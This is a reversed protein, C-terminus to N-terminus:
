GRPKWKLVSSFLEQRSATATGRKMVVIGGAHNALHAADAFSGNSALALAYTAIVTDGVGTVDVADKNGVVPIPLPEKNREFLVMGNSGRTILLAELSLAERLRRGAEEIPLSDIFHSKFIEEVESENPTATTFGSFSTLQSRSDVLVPIKRIKIIERIAQVVSENAVGYNYDSIIIADTESAAEYIRSILQAALEATIELKSERDIRIVQQRTSRGSGALIRVKTPTIHKSITIIGSTDVGRERLGLMLARGAQDRGAVGVISAGADLAAINSAANAAGGPITKTDEYRLIMVPAERSIRAIEGYVFQDAVLDGIVLIKRQPFRRILTSLREQLPTREAM